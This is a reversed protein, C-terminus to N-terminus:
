MNFLALFVFSILLFVGGVLFLFGYGSIRSDKKRELYDKYSERKNWSGPLLAHFAYSLVYTIGDLTGENALWIIAGGFVCLIGPVFFADCLCRIQDLQTLNFFDRSILLGIAMVLCIGTTVGYKILKVKKEKSM